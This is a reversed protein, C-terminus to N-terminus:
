VEGWRNDPDLARKVRRALAEGRRVGLRPTQTQGLIALGSLEMQMLLQDLEDLRGTWAIWAVNAGVSYRRPEARQSLINELDPAQRPTIPVKVLASGVPM